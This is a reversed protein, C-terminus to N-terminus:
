VAAVKAATKAAKAGAKVAETKAAVKTAKEVAKATSEQLAVGESLTALMASCAVVTYLGIRM